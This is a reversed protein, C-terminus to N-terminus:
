NENGGKAHKYQKSTQLSYRLWYTLHHRRESGLARNEKESICVKVIEGDSWLCVNRKSFLYEGFM